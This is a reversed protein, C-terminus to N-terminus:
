SSTRCRNCKLKANTGSELVGTPYEKNFDFDVGCSACKKINPKYESRRDKIRNKKKQKELFEKYAPNSDEPLEFESSSIFQMEGSVRNSPQYEIVEKEQPKPDENEITKDSEFDVSSLIEMARDIAKKLTANNFNKTPPAEEMFMYEYFSRVEEMDGNAIAIKLKEKKDKM